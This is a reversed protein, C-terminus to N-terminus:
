LSSPLIDDTTRSREHAKPFKTTFTCMVIREKEPPPHM